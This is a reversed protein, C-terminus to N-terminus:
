VGYWVGGEERVLGQQQLAQLHLSISRREADNVHLSDYGQPYLLRRQVLQELSHPRERLYALLREHRLGIQATFRELAREFVARETIIGKHHSTVWARAELQRVRRLSDEFQLLDSCADGYYPGFGTLDIDGLFAVGESEVVLACHGATHGPLHHARIRVGAGLEWLQGDAYATADPRPQYHYQQEIYPRLASLVEPAFGYHAALGPWSQLAALDQEHVQVPIHQLDGLAVIHDEHVHGLLLLDMQQLLPLLQRAVLPTDFAVQGQRGRVIVQNGDPLKGNKNGLYVQVAGCQWSPAPTNNSHQHHHM